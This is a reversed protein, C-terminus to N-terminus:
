VELVFDLNIVQLARVNEEAVEAVTKSSAQAPATTRVKVLVGGGQSAQCFWAIKSRSGWFCGACFRRMVM